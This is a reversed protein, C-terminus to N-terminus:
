LAYLGENALFVPSSTRQHHHARGAAQREEEEGAGGGAGQQGDKDKDRVRGRDLLRMKVGPFM